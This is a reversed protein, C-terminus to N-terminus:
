ALEGQYSLHAGCNSRDQELAKEPSTLQSPGEKRGFGKDMTVTSGVCFLFEKILSNNANSIPHHQDVNTVGIDSGKSIVSNDMNIFYIPNGETEVTPLSLARYSNLNGHMSHISEDIEQIIEKFKPMSQNAFFNGFGGWARMVAQAPGAEEVIM